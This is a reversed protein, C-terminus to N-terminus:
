QGDEFEEFDIEGFKDSHMFTLLSALREADLWGRHNALAEGTSDIFITTPTAQVNLKQALERKTLETGFFNVKERSDLDLSVPLFGTELLGSVGADPFVRRHMEKCIGCWEAEVFLMILKNGDSEAALKQAEELSHWKTEAAKSKEQGNLHLWQGSIFLIAFLLTLFKVPKM